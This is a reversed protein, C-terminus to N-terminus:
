LEWMEVWGPLTYCVAIKKNRRNNGIKNCGGIERLEKTKINNCGKAFM